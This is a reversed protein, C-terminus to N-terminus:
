GVSHNSEHIKFKPVANERRIAAEQRELKFFFAQYKRDIVLTETVNRKWIQTVTKFSIFTSACMSVAASNSCLANKFSGYAQQPRGTKVCPSDAEEALSRPRSFDRRRFYGLSINQLVDM